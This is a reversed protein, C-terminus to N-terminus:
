DFVETSYIYSKALSLNLRSPILRVVSHMMVLVTICSASGFYIGFLNVIQFSNDTSENNGTM